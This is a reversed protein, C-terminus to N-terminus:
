VTDNMNQLLIVIEQLLSIKNDEDEKHEVLYSKFVLLADMIEDEDLKGELNELITLCEMAYMFDGKVTANAIDGMYQRYDLGSNWISSLLAQHSASYEDNNLCKVIEPPVKTSKISNLLDIIEDNLKSSKSVSLVQVLPEIATENGHVKLSKIAKVQEAEDKTSLQLLLEKVKKAKAKEKDSKKEAM